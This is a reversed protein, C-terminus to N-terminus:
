GDGHRVVYQGLRWVVNYANWPKVDVPEWAAGALWDPVDCCLHHRTLRLLARCLMTRLLGFHM